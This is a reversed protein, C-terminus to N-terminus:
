IKQQLANKMFFREISFTSSNQDLFESILIAKEAIKRKNCVQNSSYMEAKQIIEYMLQLLKELNTSHLTRFRMILDSNSMEIIESLTFGLQDKLTQDTDQIESEINTSKSGIIKNILSILVLNLKEIERKIFDKETEM